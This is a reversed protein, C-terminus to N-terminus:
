LFSNWKIKWTRFHLNTPGLLRNEFKEALRFAPFGGRSARNTPAWRNKSLCGDLKRIASWGGLVHLPCSTKGYRCHLALIMAKKDIRLLKCDTMATASGMRLPQGALGCEGFFEGKSLIGRTAEKGGPRIYGPTAASRPLSNPPRTCRRTRVRSRSHDPTPRAIVTYM